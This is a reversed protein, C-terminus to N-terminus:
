AKLRKMKRLQSVGRRTIRRIAWHIKEYLAFMLAAHSVTQLLKPMLGYYMAGLGKQHLDRLCQVMGMSGECARLRSQAVQLPFTILTAIAKAVAGIWFAELTSIEAHVCLAKLFDYAFFQIVPNTVLWLSTSLGRWLARTGEQLWLQYVTGFVGRSSAATKPSLADSSGPLQGPRHSAQAVVSARWLPETCVMNLAGALASSALTEYSGILGEERGFAAALPEKLGQFLFFYLFNSSGVTQLMPKCGIYLGSVGEDRVVQQLVELFGRSGELDTQLLTKLRELPFLFLTALVTGTSGAVAHELSCVSFLSTVM